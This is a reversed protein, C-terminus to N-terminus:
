LWPWQIKIDATLATRIAVWAAAVAGIWIVTKGMWGGIWLSCRGFRGATKKVGQMVSVMALVDGLGALVEDTAKMHLTQKDGIVTSAATSEDVKLIMFNKWEDLSKALAADKVRREIQLSTEFTDFRDGLALLLETHKGINAEIVGMRAILPAHSADCTSREVSPEAM